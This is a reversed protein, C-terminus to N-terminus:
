RPNPMNLRNHEARATGVAEGGEQRRSRQCGDVASSSVPLRTGRATPGENDRNQGSGSLISYCSVGGVATASGLEGCPVLGSLVVPSPDARGGDFIVLRMVTLSVRGIWGGGQGEWPVTTRDTWQRRSNSTRGGSNGHARPRPRACRSGGWRHGIDLGFTVMRRSSMREVAAARRLGRGSRPDARGRGAGRHM